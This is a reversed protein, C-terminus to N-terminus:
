NIKELKILKIKDTKGSIIEANLSFIKKFFRIIAQNAKNKEPAANVRMKYSNNEMKEIIETKEANPVVKIKVYIPFDQAEIEALFENKEM